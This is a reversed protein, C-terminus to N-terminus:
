EIDSSTEIKKRIHLIAQKCKDCIKPQTHYGYRMAKVEDDSLKVSEDCIMCPIGYSVNQIESIVECYNVNGEKLNFNEIKEGMKFKQYM